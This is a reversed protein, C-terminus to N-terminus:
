SAHIRKLMVFGSHGARVCSEPYSKFLLVDKRGRRQCETSRELRAGNVRGVSCDSNGHAEYLLAINLVMKRGPTMPIIVNVDHGRTYRIRRSYGVRLLSCNLHRWRTESLVECCVM